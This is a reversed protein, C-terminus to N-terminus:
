QLSNHNRLPQIAALLLNSGLLTSSHMMRYFGQIQNGLSLHEIGASKMEGLVQNKRLEM